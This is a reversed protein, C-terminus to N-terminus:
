AKPAEGTGEEEAPVGIVAADAVAAHELLLAELEAPAVQFGEVKIIEKVRDVIFFDGDEDITLDTAERNNLYGKMVNPGRIWIEGVQGTGVRQAQGTDVDVIKCVCDPVLRGVSGSKSTGRTGCLAM